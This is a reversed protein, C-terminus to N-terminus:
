ERGVSVTPSAAGECTPMGERLFLPLKSSTGVGRWLDALDLPTTPPSAVRRLPTGGSASSGLADRDQSALGGDPDM